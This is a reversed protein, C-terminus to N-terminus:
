ALNDAIRRLDPGLSSGIAIGLEETNGITFDGTGADLKEAILLLAYVQAAPYNQSTLAEGAHNVLAERRYSGYRSDEESLGLHKDLANRRDVV